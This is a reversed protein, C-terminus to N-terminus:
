APLEVWNRSERCIKWVGLYEDELGCGFSRNALDGMQLACTIATSLAVNDRLEEYDATVTSEVLGQARLYEAYDTGHVNRSFNRYVVNYVDLLGLDRAREEVSQGSFGNKRMREALEKGNREILKQDFARQQDPLPAGKVLEHGRFESQRQQKFKQLMMADIVRQAALNPDKAALRLFVELDVRVEFLVRILVQAEMPLDGGYILRIARFTNLGKQLMALTIRAAGNVKAAVSMAGVLKAGIAEVADLLPTWSRLHENAM